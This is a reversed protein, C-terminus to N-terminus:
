DNRPHRRLGPGAKRTPPQDQPNPRRQPCAKRIPQDQPRTPRRIRHAPLRTVKRHWQEDNVRTGAQPRPRAVEVRYAQHDM